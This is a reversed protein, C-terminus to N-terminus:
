ERPRVGHALLWLALLGGGLSWGCAGWVYGADVLLTGRVGAGVLRALPPASWRVPGRALLTCLTGALLAFPLLGMGSFAPVLLPAALLAGLGPALRFGPVRAPVPEERDELRSVATVAAVYATHVLALGYAWLPAGLGAAGHVGLLFSLGRCSGMAVDGAPGARKLGADYAVAVLVIALATGGCAPGVIGALTVGATLCAAGVGLAQDTRVRGQPLVRHPHRLRDSPLDFLDNLAMGGLYLFAASLAAGLYPLPAREGGVYLGAVPDGLASLVLPLRFLRAVDKLNVLPIGYARRRFAPVGRM